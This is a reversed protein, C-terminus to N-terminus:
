PNQFFSLAESAVLRLQGGFFQEIFLGSQMYYESQKARPASVPHYSLRITSPHTSFLLVERCIERVLQLKAWLFEFYKSCIKVMTLAYTKRFSCMKLMAILWQTHIKGFTTWVSVSKGQLFGFYRCIEVTKFACIRQSSCM